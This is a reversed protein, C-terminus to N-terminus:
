PWPATEQEWAYHDLIPDPVRAVDPHLFIEALVGVSHELAHAIHEWDSCRVPQDTTLTYTVSGLTIARTQNHHIGNGHLSNRLEASVIFPNMRESPLGLRDIVTKAVKFFERPATGATIERCVNRLGNEIQFQALLLFSLKGSKQLIQGASDVAEPTVTQLGLLQPIASRVMEDGRNWSDLLNLTMQGARAIDRVNSLTVTRADPNSYGLRTRLSECADAVDAVCRSKDAFNTCKRYM